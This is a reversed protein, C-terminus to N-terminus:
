MKKKLLTVIQVQNETKNFEAVELPIKELSNAAPLNAKEGQAWNGLSNAANFHAAKCARHWPTDKHSELANIAAGHRLLPNILDGHGYEVAIHLATKRWVNREDINQNKWGDMDKAGFRGKRALLVELISLHRGIAATHLPTKKENDQTNPDAKANLLM